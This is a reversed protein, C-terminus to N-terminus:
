PDGCSNDLLDRCCYECDVHTEATIDVYIESYPKEDIEM